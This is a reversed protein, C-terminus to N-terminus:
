HHGDGHQGHDMGSHEKMMEARKADHHARMEDMSVLADDGAMAAFEAKAKATVFNILEQESVMGDGDVDVAKFHAVMKADMASHEPKKEHHSALATSAAFLAASAIAIVIRM